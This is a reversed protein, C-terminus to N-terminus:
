NSIVYMDIKNNESFGLINYKKGKILNCMSLDIENIGSSQSKILNWHLLKAEESSLTRNYIRIESVLGKFGNTQPHINIGSISLNNSVTPNPSTLDKGNNFGDCTYNKINLILNLYTNDLPEYNNINCIDNNTNTEIGVRNNNMHISLYKYYHISSHEFFTMFSSPPNVEPKIKLYFSSGSNLDLDISNFVFKDDIGDFIVGTKTFEMFKAKKSSYLDLVENSSLSKSYSGVEDMSGNFNLALPNSQNSGLRTTYNEDYITFNKFIELKFDGNYFGKISGTDENYIISLHNWNNLSINFLFGNNWGSGNNGGAIISGDTGLNLNLGLTNNSNGIAILSSNADPFSNIKIWLSYTLINSDIGDNFYIYDNIGDFEFCGGSIGCSTNWVAGYIIGSNNYSTRDTASTDNFDLILRSTGFLTGDNGLGSYDKIIGSYEDFKWHALLGASSINQTSNSFSCVEIGSSDIISLLNLSYNKNSKLYLFNNILGEVEISNSSYIHDQEIDVLLGSSFETFWSQFGVVSVISVSLLLIIAVVPSIAKKFLRFYM